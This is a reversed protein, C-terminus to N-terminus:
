KGDSNICKEIIDEYNLVLDMQQKDNYIILNGM